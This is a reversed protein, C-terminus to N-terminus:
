AETWEDVPFGQVLCMGWRGQTTDIARKLAARSAQPLPFDAQEM